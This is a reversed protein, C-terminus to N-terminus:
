PRSYLNLRTKVDLTVIVKGDRVSKMLRRGFTMVNDVYKLGKESCYTQYARFLNTATSSLGDWGSEPDDLFIEEATKEAASIMKFYDTEPFKMPLFNSINRAVLMEGIVKGAQKNFLAKRLNAWYLHDGKYKPDCDFYAFRREGDATDFPNAENTTFIYRAINPTTIEKKGKPNYKTNRGTILGKLFASKEMCLKRDAEELKVLFKGDRGSDHPAFFQENNTYNESFKEGVVFEMIFDGLTDKGIGKSGTFVLSVGPLEHPKQILHAFWNLLYERSMEVDKSTLSILDQFYKMALEPDFEPSEECAKEYQFKLPRVFVAPDDSPTYQITHICRKKADGKWIPYFPTNNNYDDASHNFHWGNLLYLSAHDKPAMYMLEDERLEVIENTPAYHFHTEEFRTKMALYDNLSVRANVMKEKPELKDFSEFPKEELKVTYGTEKLIAQEITCLTATDILTGKRIDPMCGDDSLVNVTWGLEQFAKRMALMCKREETQLLLALFSDESKRTNKTDEVLEAHEPLKSLYKKITAIEGVLPALDFNDTSGGYLVKILLEKAEERTPAIRELWAERNQIYDQLIPLDKDYRKKMYQITLTPHCNVIDIDHYLDKCLTGRVKREFKELGFGGRPYLRGYGHRGAASAALKYEVPWIYYFGTDKKNRMINQWGSQSTSDLSSKM